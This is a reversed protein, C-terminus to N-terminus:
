AINNGENTLINYTIPIFSKYEVTLQKLAIPFRPTSDGGGGVSDRGKM